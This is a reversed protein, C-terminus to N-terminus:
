VCGPELAFVSATPLLATSNISIVPLRMSPRASCMMPAPAFPETIRPMTMLPVYMTVPADPSKMRM